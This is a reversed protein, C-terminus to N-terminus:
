RCDAGASSFFSRRGMDSQVLQSLAYGTTRDRSGAEFHICEHLSSLSGVLVHFCYLADVPVRCTTTKVENECVM